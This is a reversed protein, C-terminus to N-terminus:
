SFDGLFVPVPGHMFIANDLCLSACLGCGGCKAPDIIAKRNKFSIADYLCWNKCMGCGTCRQPNVESLAKTERDLKTWNLIQGLSLGKLESISSFGKREMYNELGNIFDDIKRFGVDSYMLATCIQVTSAGVMIAKVLDPWEWIGGTASIPIDVKQATKAVWKLMLPRMWPGGVGAFFGHLLPRGTEIDIDLASFRNLLTIGSAGCEQMKRAVLDPSIEEAVLKVFVPLDVAAVVNKVVQYALNVDNGPNQGSESGFDDSEPCGFNLELMDVGTAVMKKALDVWVELTKGSISGILRTDHKHCYQAAAALEEAWKEPTCAGLYECSYNSFNYPWAKKHLVTFRPSVNKQLRSEAIVTNAVIGGVGCDVCKKVHKLTRSQMSLAVVVPNKFKRGCVEIRLDSNM